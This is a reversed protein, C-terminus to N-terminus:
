EVQVRWHRLAALRLAEKRDEQAQKSVWLYAKHFQAPRQAARM